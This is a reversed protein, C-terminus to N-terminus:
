SKKDKKWFALDNMMLKLLEAPTMTSAEKCRCADAEEGTTLPASNERNEEAAATKHQKAGM